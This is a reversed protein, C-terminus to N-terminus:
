EEGQPNEVLSALLATPLHLSDSGHNLREYYPDEVAEDTPEADPEISATDENEVAFPRWDDTGLELRLDHQNAFDHRPLRGDEGVTGQALISGKADEIRYSKGVVGMKKAMADAGAFAFRLSHPGAESKFPGPLSVLGDPLAEIAAGASAGGLFDHKASKVTFNGPCAFTINGGELVISSQGAHLVIKKNAKIEIGDNVSLVVVEKDALIELEGTNAQLSVDGNGAIAKIGGEQTFLAAANAAVGSYTQGATLHQDSGSTWHVQKGAFLLTSAPTAFNISDVSDMATIAGDFREVPKGADLDRAGGKARQAAHGNVAGAYKGKEKPDLQKQLEQQAKIADASYLAQQHAATKALSEGLKQGARLRELAYDAELQTSTIGAGQASRASTTLLLGEGSRLVAWADTRLEFGTGRHAGRAASDPAQQVIHGLNLQSAATSSALRMRLQQSTDDLVWQNYGSGDLSHSHIGSVVGAHNANSDVGASFPPKDSGTYLQSVVIPRDIDGEIFDVLVETGIRPTFQSGFNPGALAEAVRVWTGSSDDGPANGQAETNHSAGGPNAGPGRQWPFQIRIQQGRQTTNAAGPLGVVLATQAGLAPGQLRWATASPVLPVASRVCAFRNRYTGPAIGPGAKLSPTFNNRAEHEVWLTTFEGGDFREHGTLAFNSGAALRRASGEGTFQKNALEAAQLMLLSHGDAEGNGTYSREESGDYISMTPLEGADLSSTQEAAPAAVQQPDWSAISIANPAVARRASFQDIADDRETARVGHFRLAQVAPRAAQSDFIVVRHRSHGDDTGQGDQDHEFRWSLGESALIRCLFEFDTERYQTCTARPALEQTTDFDLRVQTYDALLEQVIDRVSKDQFIYNDRRLRLLALAPELRLRYRAVGGDAGLWSAQTCLGHWSRMSGDPQLLRITLEEGIFQGLDLSTSTSLADVDFCFLENVGERGIFREAMLSEPLGSEQASSLTLLRGHQSLGTGFLSRM